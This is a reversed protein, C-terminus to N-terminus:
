LGPTAIPGEGEPVFFGARDIYEDLRTIRGGALRIVMCVPWAMRRGDRATAVMLQQQVLGTATAQRRVDLFARSPFRAVLQRWEETISAVDHAKRDFGHWIVADPTLCGRAADLDGEELARFLRDVVAAEDAGAMANM